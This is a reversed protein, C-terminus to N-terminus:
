NRTKSNTNFLRPRVHRHLTQVVSPAVTMTPESLLRVAALYWASLASKRNSSEAGYRNIRSLLAIGGRADPGGM